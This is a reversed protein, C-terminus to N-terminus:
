RGVITARARRHEHDYVQVRRRTCLITARPDNKPLVAACSRRMSVHRRFAVGATAMTRRRHGQRDVLCHGARRAVLWRRSCLCRMQREERAQVGLKGFESEPAPAKELYCQQLAYEFRNLDSITLNRAPHEYEYAQELATWQDMPSRNALYVYAHPAIVDRTEAYLFERCFAYYDSQIHYEDDNWHQFM